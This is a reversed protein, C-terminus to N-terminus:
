FPQYKKGNDQLWKRRDKYDPLVTEVERWFSPSHNMQKLHALEHVVVYDLIAEPMLMLKWNFNLNKKGSCSGWRTKQERITIRHFTVRMIKAYYDVKNAIVIKGEGKFWNLLCRRIEGEEICKTELILTHPEEIDHYIIHDKKVEKNHIISLRIKTDMFPLYGGEVYPNSSNTRLIKREMEMKRYHRLIWEKNNEIFKQIDHDKIQKPARVCVTLDPKIQIAITKRKSKIIQISITCQDLSFRIQPLM